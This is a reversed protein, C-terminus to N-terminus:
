QYGKYDDIKRRFALVIDIDKPQEVLRFKAKCSGDTPLESYSAIRGKKSIEIENMPVATEASEGHFLKGGLDDLTAWFDHTSITDFGLIRVRRSFECFLECDPKFFTMVQQRVRCFSEAPDYVWTHIIYELKTEDQRTAIFDGWIAGGIVPCVPVITGTTLTPQIDSSHDQLATESILKNESVFRIIQRLLKKRPVPFTRIGTERNTIGNLFRRVAEPHFGYNEDDIKEMPILDDALWNIGKRGTKCNRYSRNYGHQTATQVARLKWNM